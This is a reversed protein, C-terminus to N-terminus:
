YSLLKAEIVSILDVASKILTEQRSYIEMLNSNLNLTMVELIDIDRPYGGNQIIILHPDVEAAMQVVDGVKQKIPISIVKWGNHSTLLKEVYSSLMDDNGWLIITKSKTM